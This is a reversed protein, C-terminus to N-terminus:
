RGLHDITEAVCDSIEQEHAVGGFAVSDTTASPSVGSVCRMGGGEPPAGDSGCSGAVGIDLVVFRAVVSAEQLGIEVDVRFSGVNGNTGCSSANGVDMHTLAGILYM